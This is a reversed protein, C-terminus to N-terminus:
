RAVDETLYAFEGYVRQHGYGMTRSRFVVDELLGPWRERTNTNDRLTAMRSVGSTKATRILVPSGWTQLHEVLRAVLDDSWLGDDGLIPAPVAYVGWDADVTAMQEIVFTLGSNNAPYRRGFTGSRAHAHHEQKCTAVLARANAYANSRLAPIDLYVRDSM